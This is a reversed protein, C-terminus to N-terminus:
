EYYIGGLAGRVRKLGASTYAAHRDRAYANRKQTARRKACEPCTKAHELIESRTVDYPLVAKIHEQWQLKTM